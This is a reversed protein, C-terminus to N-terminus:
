PHFHKWGLTRLLAYFAKHADKADASSGAALQFLRDTYPEFGNENGKLPVIRSVTDGGLLAIVVRAVDAIEKRAMEPSIVGPKADSWDFILVYHEDPEILINSAQLNSVLIDQSHAFILLKLLKGFIWASSRIDIRRGNKVIKSVPWMSSVNNVGNFALVNVRRDGQDKVVFTDLIAPFGFHYNLMINPDKKVQEYEEELEDSRAKLEHLFYANRDLSGNNVADIAVQILCQRGTGVETALRLRYETTEAVAKGVDYQGHKGEVIM